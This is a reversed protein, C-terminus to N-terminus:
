ALLGQLNWTGDARRCVRLTPQAVVVETPEFKGDYLARSDHRFNLWPIHLTEFAVGDIVQRVVVHSLHLEGALLRVKARGVDVFAGPLYTAAGKRIVRTLTESDTVYLYAFWVGGALSASILLFAWALVRRLPHRRRIRM